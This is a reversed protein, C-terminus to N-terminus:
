AKVRIGPGMSANLTVNTIYSKKVTAPKSANLAGLFAKFNELLQETSFSTKGIIQHVNGNDDNKFSIKGGAIEKIMQTINDSVTGIKPNPM